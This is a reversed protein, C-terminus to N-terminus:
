PTEQLATTAPATRPTLLMAAIALAALVAMAAGTWTTTGTAAYLSTAAVPGLGGIVYAIGYSLGVGTYRVQAPFQEALVTAAPGALTFNAVSALGLALVVLAVSGDEFLPFFSLAVVIQLCGAVIVIRRRGWRDGLVSAAYLGALSVPTISLFAILLTDLDYHLETTGYSLAYTTMMYALVAPASFLAIGRGVASTHDRLLAALPVRPPDRRVAAEFLPSEALRTRIVVGVVVLVLSAGFAARWGWSTFGSPSIEFCALVVSQGLVAGMLTGLVPASGYLGRKHSPAHEVAMLLAGGWEAGAAMGQILRLLVLAIPALVGIRDTTPLVGMLTTATGMVVFTVVLTRKRGFRDGFHGAVVGGVPRAVFGVAFTALAGLQSAIANGSPFFLPGFVTGSLLGYLGFDYFEITTGVACAMAVRRAEKPHTVSESESPTSPGSPRSIEPLQSM